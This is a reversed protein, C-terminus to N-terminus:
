GDTHNYGGHTATEVTPAGGTDARTLAPEAEAPATAGMLLEAATLPRIGSDVPKPSTLESEVVELAALRRATVLVRGELSGVAANYDKVARGLSSGLRDVHEGLTGLRGYLERGLEYVEKAKTTLADQTWAYAVTRLLAILTTPTAIVVGKGAAYELLGPDHDLAPALFAEAPIFLVVFEPSSLRRWYAKSGLADVHARVHRAHAALRRARTDEDAAEAADLFAALPVKSDVVISRGGVLHVVMDPRQTAEGDEGAVTHQESFDCRALMGAVEAVRRLQLEGWAGRAQPKRLTTVLEATQARLADSADRVSRVQEVLTAYAETRASELERLREEMRTLTERLPTVLHEVATRRADLDASARVGAEDLRATALELFQRSAGELARASLAQFTEALRRQSQEVLAVRETASKREYDLATRLGALDADDAARRAALRLVAARGGVIYGGAAGVLLCILAVLAGSADM